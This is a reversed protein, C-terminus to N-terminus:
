DKLCLARNVSREFADYESADDRVPRAHVQVHEAGAEQMALIERNVSNLQRHLEALRRRVEKAGTPQPIKARAPSDENSVDDDDDDDAARDDTSPPASADVDADTTTADDSKEADALRAANVVRMDELSQNLVADTATSAGPPTGPLLTILRAEYTAYPVWVGGRELVVANERFRGGSGERRVLGECSNLQGELKWAHAEFYEPDKLRLLDSADVPTGAVSRIVGAAPPGDYTVRLGHPTEFTVPSFRASTAFKAPKHKACFPTDDVRRGPCRWTKGDNHVCRASPEAPPANAHKAAQTEQFVMAAMEGNTKVGNPLGFPPIIVLEGDLGHCRVKVVVGVSQRVAHMETMRAPTQTERKEDGAEGGAAPADAADKKLSVPLADNAGTATESPPTKPTSAPTTKAKKAKKQGGAAAPSVPQSRDRPPARKSASVVDAEMGRAYFAVNGKPAGDLSPLGISADSWCAVIWKKASEDFAMADECTTTTTEREGDERKTANRVGNTARARLAELGRIVQAYTDYPGESKLMVDKRMERCAEVWGPWAHRRTWTALKTLCQKAAVYNVRAARFAWTGDDLPTGPLGEATWCAHFTRMVVALDRETLRNGVDKTVTTWARAVNALIADPSEDSKMMISSSSSANSSARRARELAATLDLATGVANPCERAIADVARELAVRASMIIFHILSHTLPTSIPM